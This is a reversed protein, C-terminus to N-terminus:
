QTHRAQHASRVPIAEIPLVRNVDIPRMSLLTSSLHLLREPRTLYAWEASLVAGRDRERAINQRLQALEDYQADVSRKVLYLGSGSLTLLLCCTLIWRM